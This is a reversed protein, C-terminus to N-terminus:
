TPGKLANHEFPLLAAKALFMTHRAVNHPAGRQTTMPSDLPSLRQSEEEM